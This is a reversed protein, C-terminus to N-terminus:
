YYWLFTCRTAVDDSLFFVTARNGPFQKQGGKIAVFYPCSLIKMGPITTFQILGFNIPAPEALDSGGM